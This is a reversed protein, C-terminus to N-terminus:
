SPCGSSPYRPIWGAPYCCANLATHSQVNIPTKGSFILLCFIPEKCPRQMSARLFAASHSQTTSCVSLFTFSGHTEGGRQVVAGWSPRDAGHRWPRGQPAERPSPDTCCHPLVPQTLAPSLIGEQPTLLDGACCPRARLGHVAQRCQQAM